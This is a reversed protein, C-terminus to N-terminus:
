RVYGNNTTGGDFNNNLADVIDNLGSVTLGSPLDWTQGGLVANSLALVQAITQGALSGTVLKLDELGRPTIGMNSFDVSLQLSLVQGAFVGAASSTPNTRSRM